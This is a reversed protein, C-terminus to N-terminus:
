ETESSYDIPNDWWRRKYDGFSGDDNPYEEPFWALFDRKAYALKDPLSSSSSSSTSSSDDFKACQAEHQLQQKELRKELRKERQKERQTPERHMARPQQQQHQQQHQQSQIQKVNNDLVDLEAVTLKVDDRIRMLTDRLPFINQFYIVYVTHIFMVLTVFAAVTGLLLLYDRWDKMMKELRAARRRRLSVFRVVLLRKTEKGARFFFNKKCLFGLRLM